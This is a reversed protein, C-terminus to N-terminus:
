VVRESEKVAKKEVMEEAVAVEVKLEEPIEDETKKAIEKEAKKAGEYASSNFSKDDKGGKDLVLGVKIPASIALSSLFFLSLVILNSKFFM